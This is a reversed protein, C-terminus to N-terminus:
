PAYFCFIGAIAEMQAFCVDTTKNAEREELKEGICAIVKLGSELAFKTKEGILQLVSHNKHAGKSLM